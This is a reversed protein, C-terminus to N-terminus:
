ANPHSAAFALLFLDLFLNLKKLNNVRGKGKRFPGM